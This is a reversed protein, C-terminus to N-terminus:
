RNGFEIYQTKTRLSAYIETGFKILKKFKITLINNVGNSIKIRPIIRNWEIHCCQM